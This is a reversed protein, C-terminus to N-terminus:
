NFILTGTFYDSFYVKVTQEDIYEVDAVCVENETNVVSVSPNKNLGHHIVDFMKHNVPLVINKDAIAELDPKNKIFAPDNESTVDWDSQLGTVKLQADFRSRMEVRTIPKTRQLYTSDSLKISFDNENVLNRKLEIIRLSDNVYIDTDIISIFDGIGFIVSNDKVFKPDLTLDYVVQENSYKQLWNTAKELLRMEADDVYSAPMMIDLITYKDGVEIQFAGTDASPFETGREDIYKNLTFKKSAFDFSSILFEYGALNGSNFKIKADLGAILYKTEGEDVENLDFMSADIFKLVSDSIATVTGERSPFVEDFIVVREILGYKNLALQNDIYSEESIVVNWGEHTGDSYVYKGAINWAKLRFSVVVPPQTFTLWYSNLVSGIIVEGTDKWGGGDPIQIRVFAANTEGYIKMDPYGTVIQTITVHIDPENLTIVPLKLRPSYNRYNAGINKSGGFAFLRTTLNSDSSLSRSIQYLGKGKGYEFSYNYSVGTLKMFDLSNRGANVSLSYEYGFEECITKLAALCNVGSFNLTKVEGSDIGYVTTFWSLNYVRQMNNEILSVLTSIGGTVFFDHSIHIGTQDVDLFSVKSLDYIKSEFTAEYSFFRKASKKLIPFTNLTYVKDFVSIYDGINFDVNTENEFFLKVVDEGLLKTSQESNHTIAVNAIQLGSRNYISVNNM